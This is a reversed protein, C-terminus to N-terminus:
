SKIVILTLGRPERKIDREIKFSIRSSLLELFTQIKDRAFDQLAKERGRLRLDILVKDGRKLFKEAQDARTALDHPAINYTLRIIKLEGGKQPKADRRKKEEQYLFKGFDMIKCVPPEVKETVQILDLRRESALRLAEQIQMMGLQKGTEDVVRVEPSRIQNNVPPRKQM